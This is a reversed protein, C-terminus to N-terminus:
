AAPVGRRYRIEEIPTGDFDLDRAAGDRAFGSHEYFGRAATNSTLVWLVIAPFGRAELTSLLDTM